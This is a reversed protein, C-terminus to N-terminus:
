TGAATRFSAPVCAHTLGPTAGSFLLVAGAGFVAVASAQPTVARLWSRALRALRVMPGRHVWLEHAGLLALAVRLPSWTIFSATRSCRVWCSTRRCRASCCCSCRNSCEWAAPYRARIGAAIAILFVAQSPRSALRRRRRCLVYLVGAACLLDGCAIAVQAFALPPSPIPIVIRRWRLPEHRSVGVHFLSRRGGAARSRRSLDLSRHLHLVSASLAVESLLSLGLMVAAGLAFTLTGFAIVTAIQKASLGLASYARYRIAGGSLTNLGVNHGIAYGMFSILALRPYPVKAGAFRLGLADYLTLCGYGARCCRRASSRRPPIAQM